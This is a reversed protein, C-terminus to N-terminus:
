KVLSFTRVVICPVCVLDVIRGPYTRHNGQRNRMSSTLNSVYRHKTSGLSISMDNEEEIRLVPSCQTAIAHKQRRIKKRRMTNQKAYHSCKNM